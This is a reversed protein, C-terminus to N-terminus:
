KLLEKKKRLADHVCDTIWTVERFMGCTEIDISEIQWNPHREINGLHCELIGSASIIFQGPSVPRKRLAGRDFHLDEWGFNTVKKKDM